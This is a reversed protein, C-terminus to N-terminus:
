DEVQPMPYADFKFVENLTLYDICFRLGGDKKEILNVPSAWPSRSPQIIDLNLMLDLEAKVTERMTILVQYPHQRIPQAETEIDHEVVRTWGLNEGLVDPFNQFNWHVSKPLRTM